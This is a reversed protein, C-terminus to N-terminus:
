DEGMRRKLEELRADIVDERREEELADDFAEGDDFLSAEAERTADDGAMKEAMRDLEGFLDNAGEVTDRAVTRGAQAALAGRNSIATKLQKLMDEIDRERLVIEAQIADAKESLVRCRELHKEAYQAAIDATENDGIGRAMEERRRCTEAEKAERDAKRRSLELDRKLGELNVKASTVEQEMGKLLRGVAEPINDRTLETKFNDVAEQFAKRLNDLM